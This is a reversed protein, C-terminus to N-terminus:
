TAWIRSRGGETIRSRRSEPVARVRNREVFDLRGLSDHAPEHSGGHRMAGQRPLGMFGKGFGHVLDPAIRVRALAALGGLTVPRRAVRRDLLHGRSSETDGRRIESRGFLKLDLHRLTGLRTLTALKRAVFDGGLDSPQSVGLGPHRQDRGGGWWSM